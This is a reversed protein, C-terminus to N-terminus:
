LLRNENEFRFANHTFLPGWNKVGTCVHLLLHVNFTMSTKGFYSRMGVVFKVLLEHARVIDNHSVSEKLLIYIATVLLALHHMSEEKLLGRLCIFMYWVLQSRWESAKWLNRNAISRPVRTICTSPKLSLLRDDIVALQNPTGVYYAKGVSSLLIETYQRVVGLLVSHLYDPVMGDVMDFGELNMLVTVGKVGKNDKPLIDENKTREMALRKSQDTRDPPIAASMAYKRYGEVLETLHERFTCSFRGNFWIMNLM